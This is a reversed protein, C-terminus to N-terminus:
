NFLLEWEIGIEGTTLKLQQETIELYFSSFILDRTYDEADPMAVLAGGFIKSNYAAGFPTGLVGEVGRSRANFTLKADDTDEASFSTIPVRLFDRDGGANMVALGSYYDVTRTRLLAGGTAESSPTAVNQYELYMGSIRYEPAAKGLLNVVIKGWDLLVLNHKRKHEFAWTDNDLVQCARVQGRVYNQGRVCNEIKVDM